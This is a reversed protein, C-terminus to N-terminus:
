DAPLRVVPAVVLAPWLRPDEDHFYVMIRILRPLTTREVWMEHWEPTEGEDEAGFFAFSVEAVDRVLLVQETKHEALEDRSEDLLRWSMVLHQARKEDYSLGLTIDYDGGVMVDAPATAVFRVYTPMGDFMIFGEPDDPAIIPVAQILQRRMLGHASQIAALAQLQDEGRHWVRTGFRLGGSLLAAILGLLTIAVLVELLTFGSSRRHCWIRM